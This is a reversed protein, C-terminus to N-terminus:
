PSSRTAAASATSTPTAEKLCTLVDVFSGSAPQLFRGDATLMADGAVAALMHRTAYAVHGAQFSDLDYPHRATPVANHALMASVAPQHLFM